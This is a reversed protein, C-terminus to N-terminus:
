YALHFLVAWRISSPSSLISLLTFPWWNPRKLEFCKRQFRTIILLFQSSNEFSGWSDSTCRWKASRQQRMWCFFFNWIDMIEFRDVVVRGDFQSGICMHCCFSFCRKQMRQRLICEAEMQFGQDHQQCLAANKKGRMLLKQRQGPM